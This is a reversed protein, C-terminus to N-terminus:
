LAAEFMAIIEEMPMPNYIGEANIYKILTDRDPTQGYRSYKVPLGLKEYYALIRNVGEACAEAEELAPNVGWVSVMYKKIDAGQYKAAAKLWYPFFLIFNERYTLGMIKRM